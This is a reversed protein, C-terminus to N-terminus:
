TWQLLERSVLVSCAVISPMVFDGTNEEAFVASVAEVETTVVRADVVVAEEKMQVVVRDVIAEVREMVALAATVLVASPVGALFGVQAELAAVGEMMSRM